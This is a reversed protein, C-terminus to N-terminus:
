RRVVTNHASLLESILTRQLEKGKVADWVVIMGDGGASILIDGSDKKVVALSSM